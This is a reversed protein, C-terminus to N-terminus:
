ERKPLFGLLDMWNERPWIQLFVCLRAFRGSEWVLRGSTWYTQRKQEDMKVM